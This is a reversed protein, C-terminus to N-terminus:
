PKRSLVMRGDHAPTAKLSWGQELALLLTKPKRVHFVGSIHLKDLAPDGIVIRTTNYRNIAKLLKPLPWDHVFLKGITWGKAAILNAPRIPSIVGDSNIDLRQRSTMNAHRATGDVQTAIDLEGEILIINVDDGVMSVQFTTGVDTVTGTGAHVIFPRAANPHVTFQARGHLLDVRRSHKNYRVRVDSDTDLLMSSGDALPIMRQQGIATRYGTGRPLDHRSLWTPIVLLAILVVAAAAVPVQWRRHTRTASLARDAMALLDSDSKVAEDSASWLKEVRRYAAVHAPSAARWREFSARDAATCDPDLMRAFWQEAKATAFGATDTRTNRADMNM